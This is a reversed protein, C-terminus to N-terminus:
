AQPFDQFLRCFSFKENIYLKLFISSILIQSRLPHIVLLCQSFSEPIYPFPPPHPHPHPYLQPTSIPSPHPANP